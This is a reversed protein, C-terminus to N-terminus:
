QEVSKFNGSNYFTLTITPKAIEYNTRLVVTANGGPHNGVTGNPLFIIDPRVDGGVNTTGDLFNAFNTSQFFIPDTQNPPLFRDAVLTWVGADNREWISYSGRAYGAPNLGTAVTIATRRHQTIARQRAVRVDTTFTRLSTRMKNARYFKMFAPVSVLSLAGILAVVTLLETLSYGRQVLRRDYM